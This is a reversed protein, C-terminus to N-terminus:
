ASCVARDRVTPSFITFHRHLLMVVIAITMQLIRAMAQDEDTLSSNSDNGSNGSSSRNNNARRGSGGGGSSKGDSASSSTLPLQSLLSSSSSGARKSLSGPRLISSRTQLVIFNIVVFGATSTSYMARTGRGTKM